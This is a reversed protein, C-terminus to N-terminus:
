GNIKLRKILPLCLFSTGASLIILTKLGVIPLLWAGTTTSLFGAINSVSCLFAFSTSELGRICNTAMFDMIMLHIFMGIVSFLIGYIIDTYPTFYLYALSTLAGAIVSGVLWKKINIKKGYKYYLGAGVISCLSVIVGLIGIFMKSWKFVDREIYWLPTGFSPSYKYLLLFLCVILFRKDKFLQKYGDFSITTKTANNIKHEQYKWTTFLGVFYFPILTLFGIQYSINKEAYYAGVLTAIMGAITIAIWQISQIKGCNNNKQGEVVMIGDVAVDRFATNWNSLMLVTILLGLPLYILGIFLAGLIDILTALLIWTRKQLGLNDICIGILPKVLWALSIFATIYMLISPSLHLTEKLHYMLPTGAIGTIGQLFYVSSNLAYIWFVKKNIM